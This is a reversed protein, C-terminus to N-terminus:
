NSSNFYYTQVFDGSPNYVPSYNYILAANESALDAFAHQNNRCENVFFLATYYNALISPYSHNMVEQAWWEFLPKEPHWQTGYIPYNYAEITSIFKLGARDVNDSIVRYFSTLTSSNAFTEPSLGFHHNNMTVPQTALINTIESPATAFLKSTQPQITFDIPVTYNESDYSSLINFNGDALCLLEQFGMCTGWLPFYDGNQNASLVLTWINQLTQMYVPQSDFDVGGGPLLIGNISTFLTKLNQPSIDYLIPVVRAGASEIYKVYSAAIYQSGQSSYSPQSLIGIIPRNNQANVALAMLLFLTVIKYLM